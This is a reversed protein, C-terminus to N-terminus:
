RERNLHVHYVFNPWGVGTWHYEDWNGAWAPSYSSMLPVPNAVPRSTSYGYWKLAAIRNMRAAAKQEAKRRIAQKPDEYRQREQSYIWLEPTVQSAPLSLQADAERRADRDQALAPSTLGAAVLSLAVLWRNM